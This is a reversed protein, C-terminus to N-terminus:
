VSVPQTGLWDNPAQLRYSVLVCGQLRVSHAITRPSKAVPDETLKGEYWPAAEQPRGILMLTEALQIMVRYRQGPRMSKGQNKLLDQLMRESDRWRGELTWTRAIECCYSFSDPRETSIMGGALVKASSLLTTSEKYRGASNLTGALSIMTARISETTVSDGECTGAEQLQIHLTTRLLQESEVHRKEVRLIFGL